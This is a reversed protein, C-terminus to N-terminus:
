ASQLFGNRQLVAALSESRIPKSLYDDMGAQLCRERDGSMADATIAIMTVRRAPPAAAEAERIARAASLGDLVPMQVDLLILDFPSEAHRSVCRGGDTVTECTIGLASLMKCLLLLNVRNDEAVLVRVGDRLRMRGASGATSGPGADPVSPEGGPLMPLSFFFVSGAPGSSRLGVKGGLLEALRRCIALGLGTGGFRRTASSDVQSFPHFLLDRKEAPIGVGTDRVAIDILPGGDAQDGDKRVDVRVAGHDTFKVANGVLNLLVQRLRARDTSVNVPVDPAIELSLSLGKSEAAGKYLDMVEQLCAPLDVADVSVPLAASELRSFDLIDNLLALLADGSKLIMELQDRQNADLPSSSLLDAFGIVSNMPTRIEHSMMALFQSKAIVAANAAEKEQILAQEAEKRSTIDLGAGRYGTFKGDADFTAVGNVSLWIIRGDSRIFRHEFDRFGIRENVLADSTARMEEIDEPPVFDYPQRGIMEDPSYGLVERVRESVFTYRGDPDVEWIYEGAADVVDRLRQEAERSATMDLMVGAIVSGSGAEGPLRGGRDLLWIYRGDERRVRYEVSYPGSVSAGRRSARFVERDVPHIREEWDLGTPALRDAPAGLIAATQGRWWIRDSAVDFEYFIQGLAEVMLRDAQEARLLRDEVRWTKRRQTFVAIGTLAALLVGLLVSSLAAVRIPSLGEELTHHDSEVTAIGITTGSKSRVPAYVKITGDPRTVSRLTGSSSVFEIHPAEEGPIAAPPAPEILWPGGGRSDANDTDYVVANGDPRLSIVAIRGVPSGKMKINVLRLMAAAREETTPPDSDTRLHKEGVSAAAKQAAAELAERHHSVERQRAQYYIWLSSGAFCAFILLASLAAERIPSHRKRALPRRQLDPPSEGTM